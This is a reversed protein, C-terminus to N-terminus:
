KKLKKSEMQVPQMLELDAVTVRQTEPSNHVKVTITKSALDIDQVFAVDNTRVLRVQDGVAVAKRATLHDDFEDAVTRGVMQPDNNETGPGYDKVLSDVVKLADGLTNVEVPADDQAKGEAKKQQAIVKKVAHKKKEELVPTAPPNEISERHLIRADSEERIKKLDTLSVITWGDFDPAMRLKPEDIVAKPSDYYLPLKKNVPMAQGLQAVMGTVNAPAATGAPAVAPAADENVRIKKKKKLM